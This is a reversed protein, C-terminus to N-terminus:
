SFGYVLFLSWFRDNGQMKRPYELDCCAESQRSGIDFRIYVELCTRKISSENGYLDRTM